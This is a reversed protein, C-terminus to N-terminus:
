EGKNHLHARIGIAADTLFDAAFALLILALSVSSRLLIM